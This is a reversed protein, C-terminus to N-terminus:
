SQILRRTRVNYATMGAALAAAIGEPADEYALCRAPDVGLRQAALLFIDPAPKGRGPPVDQWCVATDFLDGLGTAALGAHLPSSASNSAIALPQRRHRASRAVSAVDEIVVLEAAGAVVYGRCREIITHIAEPLPGITSEWEILLEPSAIGERQWYWQAPLTVGCDALANTLARHNLDRSDVLTGDWDFVLAHYGEGSPLGAPIGNPNV